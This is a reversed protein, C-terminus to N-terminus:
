SVQRRALLWERVVGACGCGVVVAVVNWKFFLTAVFSFLALAWGFAGATKKLITAGTHLIIAVSAARIGDIFGAIFTLGSLVAYSLTILMMGGFAPIVCGAVAALAGPWGAIARGILIGGNLAIVGPLSQGLVFLELVKDRDMLGYKNDLQQQLLPLTMNGGTFAFLMVSIYAYFIQWVKQARTREHAPPLPSAGASRANGKM